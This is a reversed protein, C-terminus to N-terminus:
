KLDRSCRLNLTFVNVGLMVTGGRAAEEAGLSV